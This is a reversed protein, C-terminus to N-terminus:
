KKIQRVGITQKHIRYTYNNHGEKSKLALIFRYYMIYQRKM